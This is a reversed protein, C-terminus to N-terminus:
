SEKQIAEIKAKIEAIYQRVLPDTAANLRSYLWALDRRLPALRQARDHARTPRKKAQSFNIM